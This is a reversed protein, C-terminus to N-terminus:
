TPCRAYTTAHQLKQLNITVKKKLFSPVEGVGKNIPVNDLFLFDLDDDLFSRLLNIELESKDGGNADAKIGARAPPGVDPVFHTEDVGVLVCEAM